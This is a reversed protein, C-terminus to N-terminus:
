SIAPPARSRTSAWIFLPRPSHYYLPPKPQKGREVPLIFGAVLSPIAPEAHTFCCACHKFHSGKESPAPSTSDQKGDAKIMKTDCHTYVEVLGSSASKTQFMAHSIFPVFAAMLIALSAIWATLHRMLKKMEM